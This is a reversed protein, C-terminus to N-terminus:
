VMATKMNSVTTIKLKRDFAVKLARVLSALAKESDKISDILVGSSGMLDGFLTYGRRYNRLTGAAISGFFWHAVDQLGNQQLLDLVVKEGADNKRGGPVCSGLGPPAQRSEKDDIKRPTFRVIVEGSDDDELDYIEVHGVMTTGDLTTSNSSSTDAGKTDATLV